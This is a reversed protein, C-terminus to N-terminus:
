IKRACEVYIKQHNNSGSEQLIRKTKGEAQENTAILLVKDFNIQTGKDGEIKELDLTDGESVQYQSGGTQIVAYKM